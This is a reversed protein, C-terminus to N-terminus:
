HLAHKQQLDEVVSQCFNALETVFFKSSAEVFGLQNLVLRDLVHLLKPELRIAKAFYIFCIPGLDGAFVLM